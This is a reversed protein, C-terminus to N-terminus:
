PKKFITQIGPPLHSKDLLFGEVMVLNSLPNSEQMHSTSFEKDWYNMKFMDRIIKAKQSTSSKTTGFHACIDEATAYPSFSKDFLFNISGLAYVVAAAWIGMRGSLFPVNRKRSMKEILRECLIRYEDDLSRQCFESIMEILRAKKEEIIAKDGMAGYGKQKYKESM